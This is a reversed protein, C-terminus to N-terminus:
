ISPLYSGSVRMVPLDGRAPLHTDLVIRPRPTQPTTTGPSSPDRMEFWRWSQNATVRQSEPHYVLRRLSTAVLLSELVGAAAAREVQEVPLRRRNETDM